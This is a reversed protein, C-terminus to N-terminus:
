FGKIGIQVDGASLSELVEELCHILCTLLDFPFEIEYGHPIGHTHARGTWFYHASSRLSDLQPQSASVFALLTFQRCWPVHSFSRLKYQSDIRNLNNCTIPTYQIDMRACEMREHQLLSCLCANIVWLKRCKTFFYMSSGLFCEQAGLTHITKKDRPSHSSTLLLILMLCLSLSILLGTLYAPGFSGIANLVAKETM